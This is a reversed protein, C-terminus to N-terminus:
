RFVEKPALPKECGSYGARNRRHPYTRACKIEDVRGVKAPVCPDSHDCDPALLKAHFETDSWGVQKKIDIVNSESARLSGM